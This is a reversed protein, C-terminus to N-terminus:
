REFFYKIFNQNRLMMRFKFNNLTNFKMKQIVKSEQKFSNLYLSIRVSFKVFCIGKDCIYQEYPYIYKKYSLMTILQNLYFFSKDLIKPNM